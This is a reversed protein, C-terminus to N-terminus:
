AITATHLASRIPLFSTKVSSLETKLTEVFSM